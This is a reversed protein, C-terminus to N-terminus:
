GHSSADVSTQAAPDGRDLEYSIEAGALLPADHMATMVSALARNPGESTVTVTAGVHARDDEAPWWSMVLEVMGVDRLIDEVAEAELAQGDPLRITVVIRQERRPPVQRTPPPSGADLVADVLSEQPVPGVDVAVLLTAHPAAWALHTTAARLGSATPAVPAIILDAPHAFAEVARHIRRPDHHVRDGLRQIAAPLDHERSGVRLVTTPHSTSSRIRSTLDAALTLSGSGGPLLHEASIPVVIRDVPELGLRIVALPVSSRGVVHDILRGFVDSASTTGRWGMLVLWPDRDAIAELVGTGPGEATRVQGRVEVGLGAALEEAATLGQWAHAHTEASADPGVVTLLDVTGGSGALDAAYRLLPPASAPNAVPVLIPQASGPRTM